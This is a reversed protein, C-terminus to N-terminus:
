RVSVIIPRHRFQRFDLADAATEFCCHGARSELSHDEIAAIQSLRERSAKRPSQAALRNSAEDSASLVQERLERGVLCQDHMEPHGSPEAHFRRLGRLSTVAIAVRVELVPVIM